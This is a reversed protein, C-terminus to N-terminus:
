VQGEARQRRDIRDVKEMHTRPLNARGAALSGDIRTRGHTDTAFVAREALPQWRETHTRPLNARELRLAAM